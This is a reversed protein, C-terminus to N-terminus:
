IILVLFILASPQAYLAHPNMLWFSHSHWDRHDFHHLYLLLDSFSDSNLDWKHVHEWVGGSEDEGSASVDAGTVVPHVVGRCDGGTGLRCGDRERQPVPLM